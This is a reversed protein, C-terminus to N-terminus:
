LFISLHGVLRSYHGARRSRLSIQINAADEPRQADRSRRSCKDIPMARVIVIVNHTANDDNAELYSMLLFLRLHM